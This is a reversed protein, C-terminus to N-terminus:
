PQELDQLIREALASNRSSRNKLATEVMEKTGYVTIKRAARTLATYFLERTLLSTEKQPMPFCLEEFGSGQAKHVTMAFASEAPPLDYLALPPRHEFCVKVGGMDKDAFVIGVDGNALGTRRCNQTVLLASGPSHACALGLKQLIAANLRDCGEKGVRQATVIRFSKLLEFAEKQRQETLESCIEPLTQWHKFAADLLEESVKVKKKEVNCFEYDEGSSRLVADTLEELPMEERIAKALDQIAPAKASRFNQTLEVGSNKLIDAASSGDHVFTLLSSLVDGSGIAELQRHDGSLVVRAEPKLGCFMKAATDLDVMSCEDVILLDCELPESTNKGFCGTGPRAKFLSHLTRAKLPHHPLEKALGVTLLEAAKGTPAAIEITIDPTRKLELAVLAAIITTKGTGPGGTIISFNSGLCNRVAAIQNEHPKLSGDSGKPFVDIIAQDDFPVEPAKKRLREAIFSALKKESQYERYLYLREGEIHLLADDGSFLLPNKELEDKEAKELLIFSHGEDRATILKEGIEAINGGSSSKRKLFEGFMRALASSEPAAAATNKEETDKM